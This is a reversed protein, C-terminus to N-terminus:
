PQRMFAIRQNSEVKIMWPMVHKHLAKKIKEKM